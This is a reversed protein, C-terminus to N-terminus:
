SNLEVVFSGVLIKGVIVFTCFLFGVDFLLFFRFCLPRYFDPCSVERFTELRTRFLFFFPPPLPCREWRHSPQAFIWALALALFDLVPPAAVSALVICGALLWRPKAVCRRIQASSSPSPRASFFIVFLFCLQLRLVYRCTSTSDVFEDAPFSLPLSARFVLRACYLPAVSFVLAFLM